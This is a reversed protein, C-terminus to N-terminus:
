SSVLWGLGIGVLALTFRWDSPPAIRFLGLVTVRRSVLDSATTAANEIMAAAHPPSSSSSAPGAVVSAEPESVVAAAGSVVAPSDGSVVAPSDGSVVAPSDGSVVAPPPSAVPMIWFGPSHPMFVPSSAVPSGIL